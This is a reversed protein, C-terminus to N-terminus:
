AAAPGQLRKQGALSRANRAIRALAIGAPRARAASRAARARRWAAAQQRMESGRAASITQMTAPYM